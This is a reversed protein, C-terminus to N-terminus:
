GEDGGSWSWSSCKSVLFDGAAVFEDPTILGTEQFKSDALVPTLYTRASHLLSNLKSYTTRQMAFKAVGKGL